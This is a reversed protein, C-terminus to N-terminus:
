KYRTHRILEGRTAFLLDCQVCKFPKLGLHVNKHSSLQIPDRFVKDCFDCKYQNLLFQTDFKDAHNLICHKKFLLRKNTIFDCEPCKIEQDYYKASKPIHQDSLDSENVSKDSTISKDSTPTAEAHRKTAKSTTLKTKRSTYSRKKSEKPTVTDDSKETEM